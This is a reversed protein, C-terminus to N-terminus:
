KIKMQTTLAASKVHANKSVLGLEQSQTVCIMANGNGCLKSVRM